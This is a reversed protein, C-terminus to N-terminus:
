SQRVILSAFHHFIKIIWFHPLSLKSLSLFQWIFSSLTGILNSQTQLESVFGSFSTWLSFRQNITSAFDYFVNSRFFFPSIYRFVPFALSKVVSISCFMSSFSFPPCPINLSRNVETEVSSSEDLLSDHTVDKWKSSMMSMILPIGRLPEYFRVFTPGCECTWNTNRQTPWSVRKWNRTWLQWACMHM